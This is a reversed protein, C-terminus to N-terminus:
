LRVGGIDLDQLGRGGASFFFNHVPAMEWEGFVGADVLCIGVTLM